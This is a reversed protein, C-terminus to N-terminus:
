GLKGVAAYATRGALGGLAFGSVEKRTVAVEMQQLLIVFPDRERADQQLQRYDGLRKRADTERANAAARESLGADRWNNRWALTRLTAADSNDPNVCFAQANSNPDYYDSGWYLIYAQHQRARTKTIVQRQDGPLLSM